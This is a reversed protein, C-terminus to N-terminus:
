GGAPRQLVAPWPHRGLDFALGNIYKDNFTTGLPLHLQMRRKGMPATASAVAMWRYSNGMTDPCRHPPGRRAWRTTMPASSPWSSGCRTWRCPHPITTINSLTESRRQHGAPLYPRRHRLHGRGHQHLHLHEGLLAPGPGARHARGGAPDGGRHPRRLLMQQLTYPVGNDTVVVTAGGVFISTITNVDTPAFYDQTRTLIIFPVRARHDGGGGLREPTDPLDM